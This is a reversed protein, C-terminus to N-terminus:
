LLAGTHREASEALSTEGKDYFDFVADVIQEPDDIVQILDLDKEAIM